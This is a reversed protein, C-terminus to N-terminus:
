YTYGFYRSVVPRDDPIGRQRKVYNSMYDVGDDGMSANDRRSLLRPGCTWRQVPSGLSGLLLTCSTNLERNRAVLNSIMATTQMEITALNLLEVAVGQQHAGRPPLGGVLVLDSGFLTASHRHRPSPLQGSPHLQWWLPGSADSLDLVHVDALPGRSDMGGFIVVRRGDPSVTASHGVRPAPTSGAVRLPYWSLNGVHLVHVDNLLEAKGELSTANWVWGQGFLLLVASEDDAVDSNGYSGGRWHHLRSLTHGRRPLPPLGDVLPTEWHSQACCPEADQAKEARWGPEEPPADAADPALRLIHLDNLFEGCPTPSTGCPHSLRWGGFVAMSRGDLECAAHGERPPVKTGGPLLELWTVSREDYVHVNALQQVRQVFVDSAVHAATSVADLDDRLVRTDGHTAHTLVAEGRMHYQMQAESAVWIPDADWRADKAALEAEATAVRRAEDMDPRLERPVLSESAMVSESSLRYAADVPDMPRRPSFSGAEGRVRPTLSGQLFPAAQVAFTEAIPFEVHATAEGGFLVLRGGVAVLTHGSRALPAESERTEFTAFGSGGKGDAPADAASDAALMRSGDAAVTAALRRGKTANAISVQARSSYNAALWLLDPMTTTPYLESAVRTRLQHMDNLLTGPAEERGGSREWQEREVESMRHNAWGGLPARREGWGGFIWLSSGLRAAAHAGRVSPPAGGVRPRVCNDYYQFLTPTRSSSFDRGNLSVEVAAEALGHADPARCRMAGDHLITAPTTVFRAMHTRLPADGVSWGSPQLAMGDNGGRPPSSARSGFRCVAVAPGLSPYPGFGAGLVLALTGGAIPGSPPRLARVDPSDYYTYTTAGPVWTDGGDLSVRVAVPGAVAVIPTRCRLQASTVHSSEISQALRANVVRGGFECRMLQGRGVALGLGELRVETGGDAPGGHPLISSLTVAPPAAAGVRCDGSPCHAPPAPAARPSRMGLPWLAPLPLM